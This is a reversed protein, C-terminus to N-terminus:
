ICCSKSDKGMTQLDDIFRYFEWENGDPDTIWFKDQLAYCCRAGPEDRLIRGAATLRRRADELAAGSEVRFGLHSVRQAGDAGAGPARQVLSLVLAPSDLTFRAYGPQLKSPATGLVDRYFALSADLDRVDLSLHFSTQQSTQMNM